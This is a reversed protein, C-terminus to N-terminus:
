KMEVVRRRAEALAAHYDPSFPEVLARELHAEIKWIVDQEAPHDIPLAGDHKALWEFLVLAESHTLELTLKAEDTM